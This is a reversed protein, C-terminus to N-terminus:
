AKVVSWHSPELKCTGLKFNPYDGSVYETKPSFREFLDLVDKAMSTNHLM